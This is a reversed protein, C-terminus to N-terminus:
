ESHFILYVLTKNNRQIIKNSKTQNNLKSFTDSSINKEPISNKKLEQTDHLLTSIGNFEVNFKLPIKKKEM